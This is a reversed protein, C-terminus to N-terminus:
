YGRQYIFIKFRKIEDKIKVLIDYKGSEYKGDSLPFAMSCTGSRKFTVCSDSSITSNNRQIEVDVNESILTYRNNIMNYTLISVTLEKGIRTNDIHIQSDAFVQPLILYGLFMVGFLVVACLVAMIFGFLIDEIRM